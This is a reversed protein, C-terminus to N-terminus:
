DFLVTVEGFHPFRAVAVSGSEALIKGTWSGTTIWQGALLGGTRSQAENALWLVLRLLDSGASNKGNEVRVFGDVKM